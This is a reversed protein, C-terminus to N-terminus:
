FEVQVSSGFIEEISVQLSDIVQNKLYQKFLQCWKIIVNLLATRFNRFDALLWVHFIRSSETKSVIEHLSIYNDIQLRFADLTPAQERVNFEETGYVEREEPTLVRGYKVFQELFQVRDDEWLYRFKEYVTIHANVVSITKRVLIIIHLKIRDIEKNDRM